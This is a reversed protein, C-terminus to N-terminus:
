RHGPISVGDAYGGASGITLDTAVRDGNWVAM